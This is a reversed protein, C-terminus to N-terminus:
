PLALDTADTLHNLAWGALGGIKPSKVLKTAVANENEDYGVFINGRNVGNLQSNKGKFAHIYGQLGGIFLSGHNGSVYINGNNNYGDTGYPNLGTVGGIAFNNPFKFFYVGIVVLLVGATLLLYEKLLNGLKNKKM